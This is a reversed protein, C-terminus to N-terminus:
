AHNKHEENPGYVVGAIDQALLHVQDKADHQYEHNEQASNAPRNVAPSGSVLASLVRGKMPNPLSVTYLRIGSKSSAVQGRVMAGNMLIPLERM